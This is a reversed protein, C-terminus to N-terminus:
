NIKITPYKNSDAAGINPKVKGLADLSATSETGNKFVMKIDENRLAYAILQSATQTSKGLPEGLAMKKLVVAAEPNTLIKGIHRFTLAAGLLGATGIAGALNGGGGGALFGALAVTGLRFTGSAVRLTLYRSAGSGGIDTDIHQMADFFEDINKVDQQNYLTKGSKSTKFANWNDVLKATNLKGKALDKPDTFKFTDEMMRMFQYAKLDGRKNLGTLTQGNPFKYENTILFRKLEVPDDIISNIKSDPATVNKLNLLKGTQGEFLANRAQVLKKATLYSKSAKAGNNWQLMSTQIDEDLANHLHKFRGDVKDLDTRNPNGWGKDGWDSKSAWADDFSIPDYTAKGTKDVKYNLRELASDIDRLLPNNPDPKGLTAEVENKLSVLRNVLKDPYVPGDVKHQINKTLYIPDKNPAVGIQPGKLKKNIFTPNQSAIKKAEEAHVRSEMLFKDFAASTKTMASNALDEADAFGLPRGAMQSAIAEAEKVSLKTSAEVAKSKSSRAFTNEILEALGIEEDSMQAYTPSLKLLTQPVGGSGQLNRFARIGKPVAELVKGGSYNLLANTGIDVIANGLNPDEEGQLARIGFDTGATALATAGAGLGLGGVMMGAGFPAVADLIAAANPNIGRFDGLTPVEGGSPTQEMKIGKLKEYKAQVEAKSTGKPVGSIITGDPMQVDILEKSM